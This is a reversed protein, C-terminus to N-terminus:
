DEMGIKEISKIEHSHNREFDRLADIVDIDEYSEILCDYKKERIINAINIMNNFLEIIEDGSIIPASDSSDKFLEDYKGMKANALMCVIIWKNLYDDGGLQIDLGNGILVSNNGM